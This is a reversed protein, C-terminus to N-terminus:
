RTSCVSKGLITGHQILFSNKPKNTKASDATGHRQDVKRHHEDEAPKQRREDRHCYRIEDTDSAMKQEVFKPYEPALATIIHPLNQLIRDDNAATPQDREPDHM